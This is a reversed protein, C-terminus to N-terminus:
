WGDRDVEFAVTDPLYQDRDDDATLCSFLHWRVQGRQFATDPERWM